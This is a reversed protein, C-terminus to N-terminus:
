PKGNFHKKLGAWCDQYDVDLTEIEAAFETILQPFRTEFMFALTGSQRVPELAATSAKEFAEADPGHPLMCNHLSMGGPVFGGPKADYVGEILGMFESMLNVHYWPPRFTNEAVMWREPFIVFDINATGAVSTPATLVTFISPDPHDFRVANM